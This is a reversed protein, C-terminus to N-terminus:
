KECTYQLGRCSRSFHGFNFDVLLLYFLTSIPPITRFLRKNYGVFTGELLNRGLLFTLVQNFDYFLCLKDYYVRKNIESAFKSSDQKM